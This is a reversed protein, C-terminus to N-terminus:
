PQAGALFDRLTRTFIQPMEVPHFHGSEPVTVVRIGPLIRRLQQLSPMCRSQQGYIAFVPTHLGTLQEATVGAAKIEKQATTMDHLRLWQRAARKAGQGGGTFPVFVGPGQRAAPAIGSAAIRAFETLLAHGAEADDEDVQVGHADLLKRATPWEAWEDLRLSPQLSRIRVDALTLSAVRDPYLVAFHLAIEGGFSHGVLHAREIGIHDLLAYLDFALYPTSYGTTPMESRGHGRLDYLTVRFDSILAPLVTLYWFALNAGLGHILVLDPGSGALLYNIAVGNVKATAM